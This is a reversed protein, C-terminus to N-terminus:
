VKSNQLDIISLKGLNNLKHDVSELIKKSLEVATENKNGSRILISVLEADSLFSIDKSLFKERLRDEPAWSKISLRSSDEKVVRKPNINNKM